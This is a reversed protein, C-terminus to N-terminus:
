FLQELDSKYDDTNSPHFGKYRYRIKGERDIFITTPMAEPSYKEAITAEPDPVIKFSIPRDSKANVQEIFRKMNKEKTDMNIALIEFGKEKYTEYLEILFPMEMKCPACWSAWFDLLVVKGKLDSLSVKNGNMDTASFDPADSGVTQSLAPEAFFM